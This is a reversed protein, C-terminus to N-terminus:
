YQLRYQMSSTEQEILSRKVANATANPLTSLLKRLSTDVDKSYIYVPKEMMVEVHKYLDEPYGIGDVLKLNKADEAHFIRGDALERVTTEPLHRGKAVLMVFRDYMHTLVGKLMAVHEPNVPKLPNLIDKSEGSTISADRIGLKTALDFLNVGPMIVGISGIISTPQVMIYDAQMAMYYGGSAMLDGVMVFIKRNADKAKFKGLAHYLNDSETVSGGPTNVHILLAHISKNDTADKIAQLLLTSENVENLWGSQVDPMIPGNLRLELVRCENVANGYVLTTSDATMNLSDNVTDINSFLIMSCGGILLFPAILAVLCGTVFGFLCGQRPGSHRMNRGSPKQMDVSSEGKYQEETEM